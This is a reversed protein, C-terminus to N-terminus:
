HTSQVEDVINRLASFNAPSIVNVNHWRYPVSVPDHLIRISPTHLYIQRVKLCLSAYDDECNQIHLVRHVVLEQLIDLKESFITRHEYKPLPEVIDCIAQLLNYAITDIQDSNRDICLKEFELLQTYVTSHFSYNSRVYADITPTLNYHTSLLALADYFDLFDLILYLLEPPLAALM